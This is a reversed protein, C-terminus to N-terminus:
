SSPNIQCELAEGENLDAGGPLIQPAAAETQEGGGESLDVTVAGQMSLEAYDQGSYGEPALGHRVLCAAVMTDWDENAPNGTTRAYLEEIRGMWEGHCAVDAKLQEPTEDGTVVMATQGFEDTEYRASIGAQSLCELVHRQADQLEAAEVEGDSLAERVYDSKAQQYATEFEAAYPASMDIESSTACGSTTLGLLLAASLLRLRTTTM